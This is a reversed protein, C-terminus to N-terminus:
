YLIKYFSLYRQSIENVYFNLESAKWKEFNSNPLVNKSRELGVKLFAPFTSGSQNLTEMLKSCEMSQRKRDEVTFVVPDITKMFDLDFKRFSNIWDLFVSRPLFFKSVEISVCLVIILQALEKATLDKENAKIITIIQEWSIVDQSALFQIADDYKEAFSPKFKELLALTTNNKKFIDNVFILEDVFPKISEKPLTGGPRTLLGIVSCKDAGIKSRISHIDISKHMTNSAKQDDVLVSESIFILDAKEKNLTDVSRVVHANNFFHRIFGVISEELYSADLVLIEMLTNNKEKLIDYKLLHTM